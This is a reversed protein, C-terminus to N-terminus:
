SNAAIRKRARRKVILMQCSMALGTGTLVLIGISSILGIPGAHLEHITRQLTSMGGERRSPFGQPFQEENSPSTSNGNQRNFPFTQNSFNGNGEINEIREGRERENFYLVIGTISQIFLFITAIIGIWFHIKRMLKM